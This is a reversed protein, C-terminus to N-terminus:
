WVKIKSSKYDCDVLAVIVRRRAIEYARGHYLEKSDEMRYRWRDRAVIGVLAFLRMGHEGERLRLGKLGGLGCAM